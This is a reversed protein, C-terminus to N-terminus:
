KMRYEENTFYFVYSNRIQISCFTRSLSFLHFSQISIKNKICVCVCVCVCM